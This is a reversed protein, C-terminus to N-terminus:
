DQTKARLERPEVLSPRHQVGAGGRGAREPDGPGLPGGPQGGVEVLVDYPVVCQGVAPDVDLHTGDVVGPGAQFVHYAHGVPAAGTTVTHSGLRAVPPTLRQGVSLDHDGTQCLLVFFESRYVVQREHDLGTPNGPEEPGIACA